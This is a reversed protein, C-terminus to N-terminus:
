AAPAATRGEVGAEPRLPGHGVLYRSTMLTGLRRPDWSSENTIDQMQVTGIADNHQTLFATTSFDGRQELPIGANARDDANPLNNTKV